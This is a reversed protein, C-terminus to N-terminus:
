LLCLGPYQLDIGCGGAGIRLSREATPFGRADPWGLVPHAVPLKIRARLRDIHVSISKRPLMQQSAGGLPTPSSVSAYRSTASSDTELPLDLPTVVFPILMSLLVIFLISLDKAMDM